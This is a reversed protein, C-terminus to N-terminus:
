AQYKQDRKGNHRPHQSSPDVTSEARCPLPSLFLSSAFSLGKSLEFNAGHVSNINRTLCGFGLQVPMPEKKVKFEKIRLCFHKITPAIVLDLRM